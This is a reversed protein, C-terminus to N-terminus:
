VTSTSISSEARAPKNVITASYAPITGESQSALAKKWMRALENKLIAGAM